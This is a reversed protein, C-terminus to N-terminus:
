LCKLHLFVSYGVLLATLPRPSFNKRRFVYESRFKKRYASVVKSQAELVGALGSSIIGVDKSGIFARECVTRTVTVPPCSLMATPLGCM